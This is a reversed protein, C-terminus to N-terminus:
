FTFLRLVAAVQNPERAELVALRTEVDRRVRDGLGFAERHQLLVREDGVELRVEMQAALRHLDLRNQRVGRRLDDAVDVVEVEVSKARMLARITRRRDAGRSSKAPPANNAWAGCSGLAGRLCNPALMVGDNSPHYSLGSPVCLRRM